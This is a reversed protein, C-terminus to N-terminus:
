DIDDNFLHDPKVGAHKHTAYNKVSHAVDEFAKDVDKKDFRRTSKERVNMMRAQRISEFSSALYTFTFNGTEQMDEILRGIAHLTFYRSANEMGDTIIVFVATALDNKFELHKEAKLRFICEGVADLLATSGHPRYNSRDLYILEEMGKDIFLHDVTNSFKTLSVFFDQEPYEQKLSKIIEAQKNFGDITQNLCSGMSGSEDLIIHYYTTKNTQM